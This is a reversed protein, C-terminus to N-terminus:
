FTQRFIALNGWPAYYALDGTQPTYGSPSGSTSLKRSLHSIKENEGYNNLTISLPLMALFDQAAPSNNLTAIAVKNGSVIRIQQYNKKHEQAQAHLPSLLILGICFALFYRKIM